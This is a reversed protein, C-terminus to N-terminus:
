WVRKSLSNSLISDRSSLSSLTSKVSWNERIAVWCQPLLPLLQWIHTGSYPPSIARTIVSLAQNEMLIGGFFWISLKSQLHICIWWPHWNTGWHGCHMCHIDCCTLPLKSPKHIVIWWPYWKLAGTIDLMGQLCHVSNITAADKLEARLQSYLITLRM